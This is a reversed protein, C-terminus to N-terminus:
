LEAEKRYQEELPSGYEAPKWGAIVAMLAHNRCLHIGLKLCKEEWCKAVAPVKDETPCSFCYTPETM